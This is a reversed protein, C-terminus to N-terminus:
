SISQPTRGFIMRQPSDSRASDVNWTQSLFFLAYSCIFATYVVMIELHMFARWKGPLTFKSGKWNAEGSGKCDAVNALPDDILM